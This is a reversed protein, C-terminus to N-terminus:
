KDFFQRLRSINVAFHSTILAKEGTDRVCHSISGGVNGASRGRGKNTNKSYTIYTCQWYNVKTPGKGAKSRRLCRGADDGEESV